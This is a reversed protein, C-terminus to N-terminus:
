NFRLEEDLPEFYSNILANTIEDLKAPKWTPQNDKDIVRARVGEFFDHSQLFHCALRYEMKMCNDFDMRKGEHMEKLTVTLSTPSRTLLDEITEESWGTRLQRLRNIIEMISEASFCHNIEKKYSSLTSNEFSTTFPEIIKSIASHSNQANLPHDALAQVINELQDSSVGYDVLGTYLADTTNIQKSTLGLYVGLSGPCRPLFYSSGIDPFFGIRTEPMAFTFRETAIRHSGHISIGVGGGMTLGDLFAIYPKRYNHIHHNLRYENWFFRNIHPNNSQKEAYVQKIDGGACFAKGGSGRIIVAKIDDNMEWAHLYQDLSQVMNLTLANLAEPRKLTILGLYGEKSKIEEAVLHTDM